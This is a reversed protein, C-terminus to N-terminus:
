LSGVCCMCIISFSYVLITGRTTGCVVAAKNGQNAQCDDIGFGRNGCADLSSEGGSCEVNDVNFNLTEVESVFPSSPYAVGGPSPCPM